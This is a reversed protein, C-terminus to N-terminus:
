ACFQIFPNNVTRDKSPTHLIDLKRVHTSGLFMCEIIQQLACMFWTKSTQEGTHALYVWNSNNLQVEVQSLEGLSSELALPSVGHKSIKATERERKKTLREGGASITPVPSKHNSAAKSPPAINLTKPENSM